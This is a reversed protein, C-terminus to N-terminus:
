SLATLVHRHRQRGLTWSRILQPNVNLNGVTQNAAEVFVTFLRCLCRIPPLATKTNNTAACTADTRGIKAAYSLRTSCHNKLGHTAPEFGHQRKWKRM